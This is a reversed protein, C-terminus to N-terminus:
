SDSKVAYKDPDKEFCQKQKKWSFSWYLVVLTGGVVTAAGAVRPHETKPIALISPLAAALFELFAGVIVVWGIKWALPRGTRIGYFASAWFITLAAALLASRVREGASATAVVAIILSVLSWGCFLICIVKLVRMSSAGRMDLARFYGPVM